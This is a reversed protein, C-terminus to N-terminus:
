RMTSRSSALTIRALSQIGSVIKRGGGVAGSSYSPVADADKAMAHLLVMLGNEM